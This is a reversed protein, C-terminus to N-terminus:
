IRQGPLLGVGIHVDRRTGAFEGAEDLEVAGGVENLIAAAGGDACERREAVGAARKLRDRVSGAVAVAAATAAVVVVM